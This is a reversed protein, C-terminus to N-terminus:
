ASGGGTAPKATAAPAATAAAIPAGGGAPADGDSSEDGGCAVAAVVLLSGLALLMPAWRKKLLSLDM